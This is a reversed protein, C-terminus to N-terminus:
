FPFESQDEKGRPNQDEQNNQAYQLNTKLLIIKKLLDRTESYDMMTPSISFKKILAEYSMTVGLIKNKEQNTLSYGGMRITESKGIRNVTGYFKVAADLNAIVRKHFISLALLLEVTKINPKLQQYTKYNDILFQAEKFRNQFESFIQRSLKYDLKYTLINIIPSDNAM